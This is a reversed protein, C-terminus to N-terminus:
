QAPEAVQDERFVFTTATCGANLTHASDTSKDIGKININEVNIIRTFRGIKEFFEGLADYNGEVELRIPWDLYFAHPVIPQPNFKTIRLNSASAMDQVSRLVMPTEKQAPLISRLVALRLELLALDQKFQKLKREVASAEAVSKQLKTVETQLADRKAIVDKLYLGYFAGALVLMLVAFVVLQNAPSLNEFKYDKLRM